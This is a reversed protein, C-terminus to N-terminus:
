FRLQVGITYIKSTPYSLRDIGQTVNNTGYSSVDPDVWRYKTLTFLNQASIFVSASKVPKITNAKLRYSLRVNKVRLYSGNELAFAGESKLSNTVSIKPYKADASPADPRWRNNYVDVVQNRARIMSNALVSFSEDWLDNGEVGQIFINLDFQRYSLNNTLGYIFDPDAYGVIKRDLSTIKGDNDLDAYTANGTTKDVGTM